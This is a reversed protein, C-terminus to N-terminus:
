INRHCVVFGRGSKKLFNLLIKVNEISYVYDLCKYEIYGKGGCVCSVNSTNYIPIGTGNCVKCSVRKTPRTEIIEKRVDELYGDKLSRKLISIVIRKKNDDIYSGNKFMRFLFDEGIREDSHNLTHQLFDFVSLIWPASLYVDGDYRSYLDFIIM